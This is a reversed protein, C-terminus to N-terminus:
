TEPTNKQRWARDQERLLQRDQRSQSPPASAGTNKVFISNVASTCNVGFFDTYKSDILYPRDAMV